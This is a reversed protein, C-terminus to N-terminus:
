RIVTVGNKRSAKIRLGPRILFVTISLMMANVVWVISFISAILMLDKVGLAVPLIIGLLISILRTFRFHSRQRKM